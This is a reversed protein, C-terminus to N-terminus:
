PIWSLNLGVTCTITIITIIIIIITIMIIMMIILNKIAMGKTM